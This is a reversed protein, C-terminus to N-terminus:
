DAQFQVLGNLQGGKAKPFKAYITVPGPKLRLTKSWRSGTVRMKHLVGNNKIQVALANPVVISFTQSEGALLNKRLPARLQCRNEYYKEYCLAFSNDVKADREIQIRYNVVSSFNKESFKKALIHLTYDGKKPYASQIITDSGMHGIMVYSQGLREEGRKIVAQIRVDKPARFRMWVLGKASTIQADSHSIAHVDYDFYGSRLDLSNEFKEQSMPDAVLQWNEDEPFHTPLLEEPNPAFYFPKFKRNFESDFSAGAGWTCDVLNWAGDIKVANWAHNSETFRSGYVHSRGKAYGVVVESKLGCAKAMYVYLAAYGACVAKKDTYVKQPDVVGLYSLDYSINNCIWTFIIRATERDNASRKNLYDICAQLTLGKPTAAAKADIHEYNVETVEHQQRREDFLVLKTRSSIRSLDIAISGIHRNEAYTQLTVTQGKVFVVAQIERGDDLVVQELQLQEAHLQGTYIPIALFFLLLIRM